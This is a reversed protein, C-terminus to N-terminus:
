KREQLLFNKSFTNLNIKFSFYFKKLDVNTLNLFNVIINTNAGDREKCRTSIRRGLFISTAGGKYSTLSAM